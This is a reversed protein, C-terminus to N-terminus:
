NREVDYRPDFGMLMLRRVTETPAIEEILDRAFNEGFAASDGKNRPHRLALQILGVLMLGAGLGIVLKVKKDKHHLCDELFQRQMEKLEEKTM